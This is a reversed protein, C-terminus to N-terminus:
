FMVLVGSYLHVVNEENRRRKLAMNITELKQRNLISLFEGYVSRLDGSTFVVGIGNLISLDIQHMSLFKVGASLHSQHPLYCQLDGILGFGKM